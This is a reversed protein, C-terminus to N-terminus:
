EHKSRTGGIDARDSGKMGARDGVDEDTRDCKDGDVRDHRIQGWGCPRAWNSEMRMTAGLRDEMGIKITGKPVPRSRKTSKEDPVHKQDRYEL